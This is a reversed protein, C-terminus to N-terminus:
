EKSKYIKEILKITEDLDEESKVGFKVWEKGTLYSCESIVDLNLVKSSVSKGDTRLHITVGNRFPTLTYVCFNQTKRGKANPYEKQLRYHYEKMNVSSHSSCYKSSQEILNDFLLKTKEGCKNYKKMLISSYVM